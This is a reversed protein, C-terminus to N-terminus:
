QKNPGHDRKPRRCETWTHGEFPTKNHKKCYTCWKTDTKGSSITNEANQNTRPKRNKSAPSNSTILATDAETVLQKNAALSHLRSKWEAYTLNDKTSLNDVPNPYHKVLAGLLFDRNAEDFSL